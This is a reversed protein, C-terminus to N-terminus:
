KDPAPKEPAVMKGMVVPGDNQVPKPSPPRPTGMTVPSPVLESHITPKEPAAQLAPGDGACGALTCALMAALGQTLLRRHGVVIRGSPDVHGRVCTRPQRDHTAARKVENLVRQGAAVPMATLDIVAHNCSACHRGDATPTMGDWSEHCPNPIHLDSM